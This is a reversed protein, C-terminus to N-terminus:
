LGSPKRSSASPSPASAETKPLPTACSGAGLLSLLDQRQALQHRIADLRASVEARKMGCMSAIEAITTGEFFIAIALTRDVDDALANQIIVMADSQVCLNDGSSSPASQEEDGCNGSRTYQKEPSRSREALRKRVRKAVWYRVFGVLSGGHGSQAYRLIFEPVDDCMASQYEDTWERGAISKVTSEVAPALALILDHSAKARVVEDDSRTLKWLSVLPDPINPQQNM